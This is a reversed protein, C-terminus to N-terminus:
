WILRAAPANSAAHFSPCGRSLETSKRIRGAAWESFCGPGPSNFPGNQWTVTTVTPVEKCKRQQDVTPAMTRKSSRLYNKHNAGQTISLLNKKTSQDASSKTRFLHAIRRFPVEFLSLFRWRKTNQSLIAIDESSLCQSRSRGSGQLMALWPHSSISALSPEFSNKACIQDCPSFCFSAHVSDLDMQVNKAKDLRYPYVFTWFDLHRLFGCFGWDPQLDRM